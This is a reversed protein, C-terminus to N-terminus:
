AIVSIKLFELMITMPPGTFSSVVVGVPALIKTLRADDM